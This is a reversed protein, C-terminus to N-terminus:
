VELSCFYFGLLLNNCINYKIYRAEFVQRVNSFPRDKWVNLSIWKIIGAVSM